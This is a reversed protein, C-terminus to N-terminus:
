VRELTLVFQLGPSSLVSLDLARHQDHLAPYQCTQPISGEERNGLEVRRDGFQELLQVVPRHAMQGFGGRVTRPSRAHQRSAAAPPVTQIRRTSTPSPGDLCGHPPRYSGEVRHRVPQDPAGDLHPERGSHDLDEVIVLTDGTMHTARLTGAMDGDVFVHGLLMLAIGVGRRGVQNAPRGPDAGVGGNQDLAHHAVPRM